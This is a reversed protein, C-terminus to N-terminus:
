KRDIVRQILTSIRGGRGAPRPIPPMAPGSDRQLAPTVFPRFTAKVEGPDFRAGKSRKLSHDILRCTSDAMKLSIEARRLSLPNVIGTLDGLALVNDSCFTGQLHRPEYPVVEVQPEGILKGIQPATAQVDALLETVHIHSDMECQLNWGVGIWSAEPTAAFYGRWPWDGRSGAVARFESAEGTVQQWAFHVLQWPEWDPLMRRSRGIRPDSGDAFVVCRVSISQTETLISRVPGTSPSFSTVSEGDLITAGLSAASALMLDELSSRERTFGDAVCIGPLVPYSAPGSPIVAVSVGTRPLMEALRSGAIGSGWILVDVDNM